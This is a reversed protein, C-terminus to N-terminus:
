ICKCAAELHSVQSVFDINKKDLRSVIFHMLSKIHMSNSSANKMPDAVANPSPKLDKLKLLADLQFGKANGRYSANNLYNGVILATKLIKRLKVSSKLESICLLVTTKWGKVEEYDTEFRMKFSLDNLRSLFFPVKMIEM